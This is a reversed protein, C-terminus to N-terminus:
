GCAYRAPTVGLERKFVAIFASPTEYGLALATATVSAGARLQPLAHLIRLRQRWQALGMGTEASWRRALTRGSVGAFSAWAEVSLNREPHSALARAVRQLRRDVPQTLALPLPTCCAIEDVLVSALRQQAADLPAIPWSRARDIAAQLLATALFVQPTQPLVASAAANFYLSWGDFAQQGLLAHPLLPPIWAIHGAPLLWHTTGAEIQLLGRRSGILQGRAHQHRPTRRAEMSLAQGAFLLPGTAADALAPDLLAPSPPNAM